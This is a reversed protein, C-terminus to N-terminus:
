IENDNDGIVRMNYKPYAEGLFNETYGCITCKHPIQEPYTTLVANGYREMFGKGCKPCLCSIKYIKVEEEIVNYVAPM